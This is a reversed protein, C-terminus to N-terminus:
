MLSQINEPYVGIFFVLRSGINILIGGPKIIIRTHRTGSGHFDYLKGLVMIKMIEWLRPNPIIKIRFYSNSM